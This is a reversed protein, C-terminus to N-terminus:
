GNFSRLSAKLEDKTLWGDKKASEEGIELERMLRTTAADKTFKEGSTIEFPIRGERIVTRVFINVATSPNLGMESCSTDFQKKVDEDMRVSLTSYAM